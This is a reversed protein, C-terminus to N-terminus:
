TMAVTQDDPLYSRWRTPNGTDILCSVPYPESYKQLGQSPVLPGQSHKNFVDNNNPRRQCNGKTEM